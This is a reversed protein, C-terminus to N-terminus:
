LLGLSKILKLEMLSCFILTKIRMIGKHKYEVSGITLLASHKCFVLSAEKSATILSFYALLNLKYLPSITLM